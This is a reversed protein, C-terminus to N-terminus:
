VEMMVRLLAPIEPSKESAGATGCALLSALLGNSPSVAFVFVSSYFFESLLM